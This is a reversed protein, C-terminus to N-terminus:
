RCCLWACVWVCVVCEWKFCGNACNVFRLLGSDVCDVFVSAIVSDQILRIEMGDNPMSNAQSYDIVFYVFSPWRICAEDGFSVNYKRREKLSPFQIKAPSVERNSIRIRGIIIEIGNYSPPFNLM